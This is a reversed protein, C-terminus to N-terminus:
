VNDSNTTKNASTFSAWSTGDWKAIFTQFHTVSTSYYYGATWCLSTSACTVGYFENTQTTDKNPSTTVTWTSGTYHLILTQQASGVYHGVAWCNNSASCTVENLWNLQTSSTNNSTAVSWSSGDFHEILTQWYSGPQYAGAAWCDTASNCYIGQLVNPVASGANPSPMPRWISGDYHEILTQNYSGTACKGGGSATCYSGVGYCNTSTVCATDYILNNGEGTFQPGNFTRGLNLAPGRGPVAIDPAKKHLAGSLTNVAGAISSPADPASVSSDGTASASAWASSATAANQVPGGYQEALTQSSANTGGTCNSSAECYYGVAACNDPAAGPVCAVARLDNRNSSGGTNTGDAIYWSTGDWQEIETQRSTSGTCASSQCYYGVGICDNVGTCTVGGLEGEYASQNPSTIISWSSGNYQLVLTQHVGSSNGAYGIAWCDSGNVCVVGHLLNDQSTTANPSTVISWSSGAYHETLTQWKGSSIKASGATWCDSASVCTVGELRNDLTPSTNPITVLSWSVGNYQMGVTQQYTPTTYVGVAWCNSSSTCTVSMLYNHQSTSVNPSTVHTWSTGDYHEVLTQWVSSPMYYGVAWCNTASLCTIGQLYNNAISSSNWASGWSWSTGDYQEVFAQYKSSSNYYYGVGWCNTASVCAVGQFANNQTASSNASTQSAWGAAPPNAAHAKVTPTANTATGVVFGTVSVTVALNLLVVARYLKHKM